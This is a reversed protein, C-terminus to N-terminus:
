RVPQVQGSAVLRRAERASPDFVEVQVRSGPYALYVSTPRTRSYVAIGGDVPIRVSKKQRAVSATLGYANSLPYTGVTLVPRREGVQMGAPLYRVYIRGDPTRTLEYTANSRSGLWYVPHGSSEAVSKLESQSVAVASAPTSSSGSGQGSISRIQGRAVLTQARKPSPDFVEIQYPSGPYALYVNGPHQSTYFAVGGGGIHIRHSKRAVAQTAAFANTFPYTGITLYPKEVGAKVGPPLYRVYIRGDPTRTLEYAVDSRKGAWYVPHNTSAAFKELGSRSIATGTPRPTSSGDNGSRVVLWVVLAVAAALTVALLLRWRARRSTRLHAEVQQAV